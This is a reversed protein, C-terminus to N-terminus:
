KKRKSRMKKGPEKVNYEKVTGGKPHNVDRTTDMIKGMKESKKNSKDVFPKEIHKKQSKSPKTTRKM